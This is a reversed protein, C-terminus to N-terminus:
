PEPINPLHKPCYVGIAQPGPIKDYVKCSGDPYKNECWDCYRAAKLNKKHRLKVLPLVNSASIHANGTEFFNKAEVRSFYYHGEEAPHMGIRDYFGKAPGDYELHVGRDAKVAAGCVDRMLDTGVGKDGPANRSTLYKLELWNDTVEYDAIGNVDGDAGRTLMFQYHYFEPAREKLEDNAMDDMDWVAKQAIGQHRGHEDDVPWKGNDIEKQLADAIRQNMDKEGYYTAQRTIPVVPKGVHSEATTGSGGTSGGREGPRGAHGFNGSGKGGHLEDKEVGLELAAKHIVARSAPSLDEMTRAQAMDIDYAMQEDIGLGKWARTSPVLALFRSTKPNAKM